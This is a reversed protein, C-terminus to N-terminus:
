MINFQSFAGSAKDFYLVVLMDRFPDDFVQLGEKGELAVKAIHGAVQNDEM